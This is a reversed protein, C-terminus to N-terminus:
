EAATGANQWRALISGAPIGTSRFEADGAPETYFHWVAANGQRDAHPNGSLIDPSVDAALDWTKGSSTLTLNVATLDCSHNTGRAGIIMSVVDGTRVSLGDFPGVTIEKSGQSIGEALRQRMQGRRVELAWAVGNGCEPHAHQVSGQIRVTGTVPSQWGVSAHLTPSPHVAISHPKMVGPIRVEKDSSNAMFNPTEAKGWGNIFDHSASKTIKELAHGSLAVSERSGLGLFSLWTEFLAPELDHAAAVAAPEKAEPSDDVEAAAALYRHATATVREQRKAIKGSVERVDSLLLDPKGPAVLRPQKWVAHDNVAGDGASSTVLFLSVDEGTKPEPLKVRIEQSAAIPLAAEQWSYPGGAKGLHGVPNFMWLAKQWAGIHEALAPAEAAGAARWRTRLDDLLLSPEKGTLAACLLTLYKANLGTERAVAALDANGAVIADRHTITAQLYKELPITGGDDNEVIVGQLNGRERTLPVTFKRYIDRIQALREDAWDRRTTGASFGIGDPLLVAHKAIEKGADLYKTILAPSMVLAQGTNMFGEGAAGDVPFEQAPDLSAIGTLDQVTYTYEANSLRRLVVPGPDGARERALGDLLNTVWGSLLVKEEPTLQKEKKPPMENDALQEAVGQWIKPHRRVENLTQFPELDLDGKQKEASHCDNCYTKLLPRIKSEFHAADASTPEANSTATVGAFLALALPLMATKFGTTMM